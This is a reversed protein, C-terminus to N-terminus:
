SMISVSSDLYDLPWPSHHLARELANAAFAIEAFLLSSKALQNIFHTRELAALRKGLRQSLNHTQGTLYATLL